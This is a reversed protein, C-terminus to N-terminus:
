GAFGALVGTVNVGLAETAYGGEFVFLTPRGLAAIRRGVEPFDTTALRFQSIPDGEYTDVGLSVVVVEAGHGDIWRCAEDLASSWEDFGTGWPLPFNRSAGLGEGTGQEDEYGLFYPYEQRPDGHLSAFVVDSRAEFIVQTGNGHHYDVDLVAVKAVGGDRLAEAAVAANNLFCYGGYADASAHHGPPRCLSFAGREGALLLDVGTLAVDVASSAAEWTGATLPTAADFSYYSLKGDIADPIRDHGDRRFSRTPWCLPLGDIDGHEATWEDWAGELFDLFAPTHIRELPARGHESPAVVPGIDAASVAELVLEAREPKEFCPLLQGDILEARGEQARHRDSYVIQM